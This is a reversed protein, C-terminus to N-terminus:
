LRSAIEKSPHQKAARVAAVFLGQANVDMELDLRQKWFDAGAASRNLGRQEFHTWALEHVKRQLMSQVGAEQGGNRLADTAAQVLADASDLLSRLQNRCGQIDHVAGFHTPLIRQLNPFAALREASYVAENYDFDIPATIPLVTDQKLGLPGLDNYAEGFADGSFISQMAHDVVAFHHKAHGAVHLFSLRRGPALEVAESDSMSRVREPACPIMDGCNRAFVQPDTYVKKAGNLLATPDVLHPAARPHALVTAKPCERLLVGVGAAHDLHAHTPIIWKVNEVTLGCPLKKNEEEIAALLQPLAHSTNAEVFCASTAQTAECYSVLLYSAVRAPQCPICDITHIVHRWLQGDAAQQQEEFRSCLSSM